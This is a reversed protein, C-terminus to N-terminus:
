CACEELLAAKVKSCVMSFVFGLSMSPVPLLGLHQPQIETRVIFWLEDVEEAAQRAKGAECYLRSNGVDMLNLQKFNLWLQCCSINHVHIGPKWSIAYITAGEGEQQAIVTLFSHLSM